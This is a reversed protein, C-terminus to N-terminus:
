YNKRSRPLYGGRYVRPMGLEDLRNGAHKGGNQIRAGPGPPQVMRVLWQGRWHRIKEPLWPILASYVGLKEVVGQTIQGSKRAKSRTGETIIDRKPTITGTFPDKKPRVRHIKTAMVEWRNQNVGWPSPTMKTHWVGMEGLIRTVEYTHLPDVWEDTVGTRPGMVGTRTM